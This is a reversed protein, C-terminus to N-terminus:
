AFWFRQGPYDVTVRRGAFAPGGIVGAHDGGADDPRVDDAFNAQLGALRQGAVELATLRGIRTQTVGAVGIVAGRGARVDPFAREAFPRWFVVATNAGTDIQFEGPARTAGEVAVARVYPTRGVRLPVASAPPAGASRSLGITARRYDLTAAFPMLADSGLVGALALRMRAAIPALDTISGEVATRAGGTLSLAAPEARAAPRAGGVGVLTEDSRASIRASAAFARDFLTVAAGTDVLFLGSAGAVTARVFILGGRLEGQAEGPEPEAACAHGAVALFPAAALLARRAIV